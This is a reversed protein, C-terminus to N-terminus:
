HSHPQKARDVDTTHGHSRHMFVHMVPCALFLLYPLWGFLHARHETLLYFAAVAAFVGFTIWTFRISRQKASQVVPGVM